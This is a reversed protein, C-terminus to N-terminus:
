HLALSGKTSVKKMLWACPLCLAIILATWYFMDVYAKLYSQQQLIGYLFGYAQTQAAPGGGLSASFGSLREQFVPDYPTMHGVLESQHVQTMRALFTTSVSIGISGGLNRMLNFIGSANGIKEKSLTGVSMTMLPVMVLGMGLGKLVNPWVISAMSVDLTLNGFMWTAAAVCAVGLSALWRGDVYVLLIGVVPMAIM